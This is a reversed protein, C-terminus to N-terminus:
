RLYGFEEADIRCGDGTPDLLALDFTSDPDGALLVPLNSGVNHRVGLLDPPIIDQADLDGVGGEERAGIGLLLWNRCQFGL